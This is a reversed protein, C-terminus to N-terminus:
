DNSLWTLYDELQRKNIYIINDDNLTVSIQEKLNEQEHVFITNVNKYLYILYAGERNKDDIKFYSM